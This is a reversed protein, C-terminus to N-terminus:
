RKQWPQFLPPLARKLEKPAVKGSMEVLQAEGSGPKNEIHSNALITALLVQREDFFSSMGLVRTLEDKAHQFSQADKVAFQFRFQMEDTLQAEGAASRLGHQELTKAGFVFQPGAAMRMTADNSTASLLKQLTDNGGVRRRDRFRLYAKQLLGRDGSVVVFKQQLIALYNTQGKQPDSLRYVLDASRDPWTIEEPNLKTELVKRFDPTLYDGLIAALFHDPNDRPISLVIRDLQRYPDVHVATLFQFVPTLAPKGYAQIAPAQLFPGARVIFVASADEVICATLIDEASQPPVPAEVVPLRPSTPTAKSRFGNVFFGIVLISTLAVVTGIAPLLLVSRRNAKLSAKPDNVIHTGSHFEFPSTTVPNIAETMTQMAAQITPPGRWPTVSFDVPPAAPPENTCFPALAAAVEAASQFREAPEKALMGQLTALIPEPVDSRVREVPSPFESQHKCLKEVPSIDPFPLRATLLYYLTCGLGYIDARHDVSTPSKAQEPAMFDPTGVIMGEMTVSTDQADVPVECRRPRALGMDLIKVVGVPHSHTVLLNSPKIDRHIIGREHAHQLGLAVQRVYDCAMGVPLPGLRHVIDALDVGRIYEMALFHTNGVQAAEFVTVINPHALKAAAQVERRFRKLTRPDQLLGARVIKLAVIRHMPQHVAKYVQGMGGEGLLELLRYPGLVLDSGHGALLQSAQYRTIWGRGVLERALDEPRDFQKHANEQVDRLEDTDLLQSKELADIMNVLTDVGM